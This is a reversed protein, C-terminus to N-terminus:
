CIGLSEHLQLFNFFIALLHFATLSSFQLKQSFQFFQLFQLIQLIQQTLSFYLIYFYQPRLPGCSFSHNLKCFQLDLLESSLNYNHLNIRWDPWFIWKRVLHFVLRAPYYVLWVFWFKAHPIKCSNLWQKNVVFVIFVSYM